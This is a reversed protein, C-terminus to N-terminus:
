GPKNAFIIARHPAPHGEVTLDAQNEMIFDAYSPGPNWPTTRQEAPEHKNVAIVDINVFKTRKLFHTMASVTPVFWVNRMKAYRDQPFLCHSSQGEVVISELVLLGGPKLARYLDKLIQIPNFHHYIIGMCFITDFLNEWHALEQWGWMQFELHPEAAYRQLLHFQYWLRPIPDIGLLYRPQQDLLRFLYYGNNCGVDLVLKGKQDPLVGAMRDWKFDSRWEADIPTGFLRFPGKKWPIMAMAAEHIAKRHPHEEPLDEGIAIAAQGYNKVDTQRDPLAQLRSNMEEFPKRSLWTAREATKQKLAQIHQPNQMLSFITTPTPDNM